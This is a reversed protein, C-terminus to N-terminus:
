DLSAGALEYISVAEMKQRVTFGIRVSFLTYWNLENIFYLINQVFYKQQQSNNRLKGHIGVADEVCTLPQGPWGFPLAM